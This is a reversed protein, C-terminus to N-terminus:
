SMGHEMPTGRGRTAMPHWGAKTVMATRSIKGLVDGAARVAIAGLPIDQVAEGTISVL